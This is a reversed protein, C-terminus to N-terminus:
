SDTRESDRAEFRSLDRRLRRHDLLVAGIMAGIVAFALAYAFVIFGLHAIM